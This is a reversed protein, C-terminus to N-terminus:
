MQRYFNLARVLLDKDDVAVIEVTGIGTLLPLQVTAGASKKDHQIAQLLFPIDAEEFPLKPFHQGIVKKLIQFSPATLMGLEQAIYGECLLGAAVAEGHLWDREQMWGLSELAHGVTHGANLLMRLNKEHTDAAVIKAKIAASNEIIHQPVADFGQDLLAALEYFHSADAILGHKLMEAFGAVLEWDPLTELFEGSLCVAVPFTFTGIQNKFGLFDIGTKGGWAADVMGLLSTPINVFPIGRMYTAALFGGLDTIMGGGLNILLTKRHAGLEALTAWLQQAIELCKSAEGPEIELIEINEIHGCHGLFTPLCNEHSNADVLIFIKSNLYGKDHLFVEFDEWVNPGSFVAHPLPIEM